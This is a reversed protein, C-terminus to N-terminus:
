VSFHCHFLKIKLRFFKLDKRNCTQTTKVLQQKEEGGAWGKGWKLALLVEMARERKGVTIVHSDSGRLLKRSNVADSGALSYFSIGL